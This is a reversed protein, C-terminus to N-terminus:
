GTPERHEMRIENRPDLGAGAGGDTADDDLRGWPDRRGSRAFGTPDFAVFRVSGEAMRRELDIRVRRQIWRRSWPMLLALGLLDTAVGPTVLLIGGALVAIGDQLAQGPLRGAALERQFQVFVRVGEARALVAGGVGTLVVLAVTPLLGVASGIRMLLLLELIPVLVFLLGLGALGPM